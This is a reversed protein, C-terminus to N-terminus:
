VQLAFSIKLIRGHVRLLSLWPVLNLTDHIEHKLGIRYLKSLNQVRIAIAESDM